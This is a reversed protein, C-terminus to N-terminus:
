DYDDGSWCDEDRSKSAKAKAKADADDSGYLARASNGRSSKAKAKAKGDLGSGHLSSAAASNNSQIVPVSASRMQAFSGRLSKQKKLVSSNSSYEPYGNSTKAKAKADADNAYLTSINRSSVQQVGPMMAPQGRDTMFAKGKAKADKSNGYLAHEIADDPRKRHSKKKAEKRKRALIEEDGSSLAKEDDDESLVDMTGVSLMSDLSNCRSLPQKKSHRKHRGSDRRHSSGGGLKAHSSVSLAHKISDDPKKRHSRKKAEKRKRSLIKEDGSSSAKEDDDESLVGM